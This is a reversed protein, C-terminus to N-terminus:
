RDGCVICGDISSAVRFFAVIACQRGYRVFDFSRISDFSRVFTTM